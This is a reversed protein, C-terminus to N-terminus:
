DAPKKRLKLVLGDRSADQEFLAVACAAKDKLPLVSIAPNNALQDIIQEIRELPLLNVAVCYFTKRRRDNYDKHLIQLIEAKRTLEHNYAEMGIEQARKIHSLQGQHTIFSDYAEAGNYKECPYSDCLFCYEVRNHELSCRAIACPQNGAGGGCGACYGGLRM